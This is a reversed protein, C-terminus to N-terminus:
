KNFIQSYSYQRFYEFIVFIVVSGQLANMGGATCGIGIFLGGRVRGQMRSKGKSVFTHLVCKQCGWGALSYTQM